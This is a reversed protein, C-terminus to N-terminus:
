KLKEYEKRAEILLSLDPDAEKWLAFFDEYAKRAKSTDGQLAAARAIGLHAFPYFFSIASWGRHDLIQQFQAGAEAGKQMRLYVQGRLYAIPFLLSPEYRRTAELLQLAQTPNGRQMELHAQIFPIRIQNLLTDTTFRKHIEDILSQTQGAEGCIALANAATSLTLRDHSLNLAKASHDKVSRCDGFQADRLASAAAIQASVEKLDRRQALDFATASFEKAKKLQGSFAASDAQWSQAAYEEPKGGAWDIQQKMGAADNQVFAIRYLNQHMRLTELKRSLAQNITQKAEDFRNLGVLSIAL